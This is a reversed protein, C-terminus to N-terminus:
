ITRTSPWSLRRRWLRVARRTEAAGLAVGGCHATAHGVRYIPRDTDTGYHLLVPAGHADVGSGILAGARSGESAVGVHAYRQAHAIVKYKRLEEDM